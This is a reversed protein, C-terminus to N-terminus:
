DILEITITMDANLEFSVQEFSPQGIGLNQQQSFGYPESPIGFFNRDLTGNSNLDQMVAVAYHGTQLDKFVTNMQIDTVEIVQKAVRPEHEPFGDPSNYLGIRINGQKEQIHIINLTLDFSYASQSLLSLLIVKIVRKM